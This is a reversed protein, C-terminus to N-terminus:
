IKEEPINYKKIFVASHSDSGLVLPINLEKVKKYLSGSIYAEGCTDVRLGAVNYDLEYGNNKIMNLVESLTNNNSYDYPFCKNYKRVINLHGIRKPKYQGLDSLLAKKVTKYYEEYVNDVGDLLNIVNNFETPNYDIGKYIEGIKIMHISLISDDLQSGYKNLLEKIEKEYGEIYDVEVGINIKIKDRYKRKYFKVEDIYKQFDKLAMGCKKIVDKDIFTEPLPLHETFSIETLGTDIANKIYEEFADNTGHPCYPSHIHGDKM